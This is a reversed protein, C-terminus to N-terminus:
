LHVLITGCLFACDRAAWACVAAPGTGAVAVRGKGCGAPSTYCNAGLLYRRGTTNVQSQVPGPIAEDLAGRLASRPELDHKALDNGV